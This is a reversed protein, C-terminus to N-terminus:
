KRPGITFIESVFTMAGNWGGKIFGVFLTACVIAFLLAFLILVLFADGMLLSNLIMAVGM